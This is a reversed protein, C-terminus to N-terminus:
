ERRQRDIEARLVDRDEAARRAGERARHVDREAEARKKRLEKLRSEHQQAAAAAAAREKELRARREALPRDAGPAGSDVVTLDYTLTRRM